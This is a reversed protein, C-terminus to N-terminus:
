DDGQSEFGWVGTPLDQMYPSPRSDPAIWDWFATPGGLNWQTEKPMPTTELLCRRSWTLVGM